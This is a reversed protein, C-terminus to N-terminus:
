TAISRYLFQHARAHWRRLADFRALPPFTGGRRIAFGAAAGVAIVGATAEATLRAVLPWQLWLTVSAASWVLGYVLLGVSALGLLISRLAAARVPLVRTILWLGIACRLTDALVVALAVVVLGQSWLAAVLAVKVFILALQMKLKANLVALSDLTIGCVAYIFSAPVGLALMATIPVVETWRRGLLLAVVDYAAASIGAALAVSIAGSALLLVLFGDAMRARDLQMASLAPFLVKNVSGVAQEIPLNALMQARNFLGLPAAGLWRGIFFSEINAWTFELFGIVSYRSGSGFVARLDDRRLPLAFPYKTVSFALAAALAQQMLTAAVLSWVGMNMLAFTVGTVGYGLIYSAVEIVSVMRFNGARRLMAMPPGALAGLPLSAGYLWLVVSLQDSKFYWAFAPAAVSVAAYLLTAVGVSALLAATVFHADVHQRQILTQTTGMQAFYSVFRLAINAMLMLGFASPELHRALVAMFGFQSLVNVGTALTTWGLGGIIQKAKV